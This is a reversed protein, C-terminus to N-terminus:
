QGSENYFQKDIFKTVWFQYISCYKCTYSHPFFKAQTSFNHKESYMNPISVIIM